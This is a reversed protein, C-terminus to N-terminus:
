PLKESDCDTFSRVSVKEVYKIEAISRKKGDLDTLTCLESLGHIVDAILFDM